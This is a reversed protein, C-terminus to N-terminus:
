KKTLHVLNWATPLAISAAVLKVADGAVFPWLGWELTKSLGVGLNISLWPLGFIYIVVNGLFLSLLLSSKRDWGKEALKGFLYPPLILGVM